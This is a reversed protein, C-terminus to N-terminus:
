SLNVYHNIHIIIFTFTYNKKSRNKLVNRFLVNLIRKIFM